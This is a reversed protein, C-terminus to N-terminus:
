NQLSNLSYKHRILRTNERFHLTSKIKEFNIALFNNIDIIKLSEKSIINPIICLNKPFKESLQINIWFLLSIFVLSFFIFYYSTVIEFLIIKFLLKNLISSYNM